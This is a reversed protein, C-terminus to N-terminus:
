FLSHNSRSDLLRLRYELEGLNQAQSLFAEVQRNEQRALYNDISDLLKSIVNMDAEMLGTVTWKSCQTMIPKGTLIDVAGFANSSHLLLM